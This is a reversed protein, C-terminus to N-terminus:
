LVAGYNAVAPYVLRSRIVLTSYTPNDLMIIDLKEIEQETEM